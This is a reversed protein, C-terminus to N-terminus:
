DSVGADVDCLTHAVDVWVGNVCQFADYDIQGNCVTPNGPCTVFGICGAGAQISAPTPCGAGADAPCIVDPEPCFWQNSYCNCQLDGAVNGNCDYYPTTSNCTLTSSV